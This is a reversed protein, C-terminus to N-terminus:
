CYISNMKENKSKKQGKRESVSSYYIQIMGYMSYFQSYNTSCLSLHPRTSYERQTLSAYCYQLLSCPLLACASLSHTHTLTYPFFM